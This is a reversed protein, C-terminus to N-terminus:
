VYGSQSLMDSTGEPSGIQLKASALGVKATADQPVFAPFNGGKKHLIKLSSGGTKPVNETCGM